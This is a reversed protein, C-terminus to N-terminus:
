PGVCGKSNFQYEDVFNDNVTGVFEDLMKRRAKVLEPETEVGADDMEESWCLLETALLAIAKRVAPAEGYATLMQEQSLDPSCIRAYIADSMLTALENPKTIM